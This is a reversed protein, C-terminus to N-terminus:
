QSNLLEDIATRYGEYFAMYQLARDGVGYKDTLWKPYQYKALEWEKFKREIEEDREM